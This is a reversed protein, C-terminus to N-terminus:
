SRRLKKLKDKQTKVKGKKVDSKIKSEDAKGVFVDRKFDVEVPSLDQEKNNSITEQKNVIGDSNIFIPKSEKNSSFIWNKRLWKLLLWIGLIVQWFLISYLLLFM